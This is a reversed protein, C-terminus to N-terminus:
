LVEVIETKRLKLITKSLFFIISSTTILGLLVGVAQFVETNKVEFYNGLFNGLVFGLIAGLLPIILSSFSQLSQSKPNAKLKVIDGKKVDLQKPNSVSFPSGQKTCGSKECNICADTILPRVTIDNELINIVIANDAM